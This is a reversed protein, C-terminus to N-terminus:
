GNRGWGELKRIAQWWECAVETRGQDLARNMRRHARKILWERILGILCQIVLEGEGGRRHGLTSGVAIGDSRACFMTVARGPSCDSHLIGPSSTAHHRLRRATVAGDTAAGFLTSVEDPM